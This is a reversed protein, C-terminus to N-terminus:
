STALETQPQYDFHIAAIVLAARMEIRAPIRLQLERAITDDADWLSEDVAVTPAATASIRAASEGAGYRRIRAARIRRRAADM